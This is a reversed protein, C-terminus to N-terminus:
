GERDVQEHNQEEMEIKKLKPVYCAPYYSIREGAYLCKQKEQCNCCLSHKGFLEWVNQIKRENGSSEYAHNNCIDKPSKDSKACELEFYCNRCINHIEREKEAKQDLFAQKVEESLYQNEIGIEDLTHKVQEKLETDHMLAWLTKYEIKSRKSIEQLSYNGKKSYVMIGFDSLSRRM